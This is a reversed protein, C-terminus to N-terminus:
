PTGRTLFVGNWWPTGDGPDTSPLAMLMAVFAAQTLTPGTAGVPGTNGTAGSPGRDGAGTAGTSGPSGTRGTAGTAGTAGGATGSGSAGTPGIAGTAGTNGPVGIGTAGTSGTAGTNGTAGANGAGSSPIVPPNATQGTWLDGAAGNAKEWWFDFVGPATAHQWLAPAAFVLAVVHNTVADVFGNIAIQGNQTLSYQDGTATIIAPGVTTITTGNASVVLGPPGPPGTRGTAGTAGTNGTAGRPGIAM